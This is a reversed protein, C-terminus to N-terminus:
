DNGLQKERIESFTKCDICKAATPRAELRRVGIEAGCDECYGYVGENIWDLAEEIKKILKRERDRTRLELNFGEEQAARDLPDAYAIADTKLHVVTSDVESMLKEKWDLLINHFHEVQEDNMYEETVSESYPSFELPGAVTSANLTDQFESYDIKVSKAKSREAQKKAVPQKAVKPSYKSQSKVPKKVVTTKEEVLQNVIKKVGKKNASKKKAAQTKKKAVKKAVKKVAKKAVKKVVKKAVKKVAKKAVKKVAKKAVKKVAKKAVKKVAKKVM